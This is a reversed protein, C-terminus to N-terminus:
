EGPFCDLLRSVSKGAKTQNEEWKGHVFIRVDDVSSFMMNSKWSNCFRCAAVINRVTSDASYSYPVVHDWNITLVFRRYNLYVISGFRKDCYFCRNDQSYLIANREATSLRQRPGGITMREYQVPNPDYEARCCGRQKDQVFSYVKCEPCWSRIVKAGGYQAIHDPLPQSMGVMIGYIATAIPCHWQLRCILRRLNGPKNAIGPNRGYTISEM